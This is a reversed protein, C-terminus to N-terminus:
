EDSMTEINAAADRLSRALQKRSKQPWARAYAIVTKNLSLLARDIDNRHALPEFPEQGRHATAMQPPMDADREIRRSEAVQRQTPLDADCDPSASKSVYGALDMWSRATRESIGQTELLPLWEGHKTNKKAEVLLRGMELRCRAAEDKANGARTEAAVVAREADQLAIHAAGIQKTLQKIDVASEIIAAVGRM